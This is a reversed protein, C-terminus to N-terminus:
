QVPAERRQFKGKPLKTSNFAEESRVYDDVRKLMEDVTKPINDSFRKSLEPCKHSSTFSSIQMLEPVNPIANSESVMSEGQWEPDAPVDKVLSAYAVRRPKGDGHFPQCPRRPRGNWRVGQCENADEKFPKSLEDDITIKEKGKKKVVEMVEDDTDQIEDDFNLLIPRMLDRNSKEKLLEKPASLHGEIISQTTINKQNSTQADNTPTIPEPREALQLYEDFADPATGYALQRIASTYKLIHGISLHGCADYRQRRRFKVELYKPLTEDDGVYDDILRQEAEERERPIYTRTRKPASGSGGAEQECLALFQMHRMIGYIDIGIAPSTDVDCGHDEGMFEGFYFREKVLATEGLLLIICQQWDLLFKKRCWRCCYVYASTCKSHIVSWLLTLLVLGIFQKKSSLGGSFDAFMFVDDKLLQHRAEREKRMQQKRTAKGTSMMEEIQKEEVANKGVEGPREQKSRQAGEYCIKVMGIYEKYCEKVAEQDEQALGLLHPLMQEMKNNLHLKGFIGVGIVIKAKVLQGNKTEKGIRRRLNVTSVTACDDSVMEKSKRLSENNTQLKREQLGIITEKSSVGSLDAVSLMMQLESLSITVDFGVANVHSRRDMTADAEKSVPAPAAEIFNTKLLVSVPVEVGDKYLDELGHPDVMVGGYDKAISSNKDNFFTTAIRSKGACGTKGITAVTLADLVVQYTTENPRKMKPDIRMNCKGIERRNESAMLANDKAIQHARTTM